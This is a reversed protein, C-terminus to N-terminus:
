RSSHLDAISNHLDSVSDTVQQFSFGIQCIHGKTSQQFALFSDKIETFSKPPKMGSNSTISNLEVLNPTKHDVDSESLEKFCNIKTCTSKCVTM